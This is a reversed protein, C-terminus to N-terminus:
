NKPVFKFNENSKTESNNRSLNEKTLFRETKTWIRKQSFRKTASVDGALPRCRFVFNNMIIQVLIVCFNFYHLFQSWLLFFFWKSRYSVLTLFNHGFSNCIILVKIKFFMIEIIQFTFVCFKLVSDDGTPKIRRAHKGQRLIRPFMPEHWVPVRLLLQGTLM